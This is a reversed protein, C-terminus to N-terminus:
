ADINTCCSFCNPSGGVSYTGFGLWLNKIEGWDWSQLIQNAHLVSLIKHWEEKANVSRVTYIM